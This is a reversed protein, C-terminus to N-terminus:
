GLLSIHSSPRSNTFLQESQVIEHLLRPPNPDTRLQTLRVMITITFMRCGSTKLLKM